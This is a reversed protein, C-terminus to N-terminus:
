RDPGATWQEDPCADILEGTMQWTTELQNLLDAAISM